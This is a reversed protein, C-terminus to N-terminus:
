WWRILVQCAKTLMKVCKDVPNKLLTVTEGIFNSIDEPSQTTPVSWPPTPVFSLLFNQFCAYFQFGQIQYVHISGLLLWQGTTLPSFLVIEM